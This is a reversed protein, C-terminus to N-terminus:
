PRGPLIPAALFWGGLYDEKEVLEVQHGRAALIWAAEMGGPGGGVVLVRKPYETKHSIYEEETGNQPNM